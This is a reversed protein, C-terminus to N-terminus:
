RRDAIRSTASWTTYLGDSFRGATTLDGSLSQNAFLGIRWHKLGGDADFVPLGSALFEAPGISYYYDAYNDAAGNPASGLRWRLHRSLPTGFDIDPHDVDVMRAALM